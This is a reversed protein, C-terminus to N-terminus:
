KTKIASSAGIRKYKIREYIAKRDMSVPKDSNADSDTELSLDIKFTAEYYSDSPSKSFSRMEVDTFYDSDELADILSSMVTFNGADKTKTTGSLVVKNAQTDFEYGSYFISANPTNFSKDTAVTVIEIQKIIFSWNIRNSKLAGVTAIDSKTTSLIAAFITQLKKRKIEDPASVYDDLDKKLSDISIGKIAGLLPQNGVLKIANEVMRVAQANEAGQGLETKYATLSNRLDTEFQQRIADETMEPEAESRYTGVVIDQGLNAKVRTLVTPLSNKLESISASLQAKVTVSTGPDSIKSAKDMFDDALFSFENLDQQAALYRYKNINTQLGALNKNIDALRATTNPGFLNFSPSLETYFYLMALGSLLFVLTFVVQIMKLKKKLRYEKEQELTKQMVSANGLIPKLKSAAESKGAIISTLMKPTAEKTKEAPASQSFINIGSPGAPSAAPAPAAASPQAKSADTSTPASLNIKIDPM